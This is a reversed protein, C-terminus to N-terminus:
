LSVIGTDFEQLTRLCSLIYSENLITYQVSSLFVDALCILIQMNDARVIPQQKLLIEGINQFEPYLQMKHLLTTYGNTYNKCKAAM